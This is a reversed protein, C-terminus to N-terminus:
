APLDESPCVRGEVCAPPGKSGSSPQSCAEVRRWLADVAAAPARSASRRARVLCIDVELAPAAQTLPLLRDRSMRLVDYRDPEECLPIDAHAYALLLDCEGRVLRELGDAASLTCLELTHGELTDLMNQTWAPFFHAALSPSAVVRVAAQPSKRHDRLREHAHRINEVLGPAQVLLARGAPTLTPPQVRRDILDVEAWAELARIRRSFAPQTVDRLMAARTFSRTSALTMFDIFWDSQM